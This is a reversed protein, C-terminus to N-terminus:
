SPPLGGRARVKAVFEAIEADWGLIVQAMEVDSMGDPSAKQEELLATAGAYFAQRTERFQVPGANEPVVSRRYSDWMEALTKM